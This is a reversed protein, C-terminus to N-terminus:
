TPTKEDEGADVAWPPVPTLQEVLFDVFARVKPSLHQRHPYVVHIPLPEERHQDALLSVLRGARVEPGLLFEALRAIGLGAMTMHYAVEGNNVEVPGSARITYPGDPGDFPWDNLHAQSATRAICVHAALDAPTEPVGHRQLYSPAACIIRRDEALLRSVLSSEFRAGIRIACDFGEDVLDVVRDTVELELSVLPHREMFVPMLPVLQATAFAVACNVRLLGAPVGKLRHIAQEAEDIDGLIRASRDYFARGAETLGLRRTTRNLLRTGLRDELRSIVKSVASPSLHLRKAAATFGGDEVVRVFVTM